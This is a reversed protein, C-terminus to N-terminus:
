HVALYFLSLTDLIEEPAAVIQVEVKLVSTGLLTDWGMMAAMRLNNKWGLSTTLSTVTLLM